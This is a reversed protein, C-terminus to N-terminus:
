SSVLNYSGYIGDDSTSAHNHKVHSVTFADLGVSASPDIYIGGGIGPGSPGKPKGQGGAGGRAWNATVSSDQLTV